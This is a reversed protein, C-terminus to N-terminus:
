GGIVEAPETEPVANPDFSEGCSSCTQRTASGFTASERVQNSGCYPCLTQADDDVSKILTRLLANTQRQEAKLERLEDVLARGQELTMPGASM